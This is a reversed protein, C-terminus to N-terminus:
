YKSTAKNLRTRLVGPWIPSIYVYDGRIAKIVIVSRRAKGECIDFVQGNREADEILKISEADIPSIRIIKSSSIYCKNGVSLVM